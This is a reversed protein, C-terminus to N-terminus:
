ADADYLDETDFGQGEDPVAQQEYEHYDEEPIEEHVYGSTFGAAGHAQMNSSDYVDSPGPDGLEFEDVPDLSQRSPYSSFASGAGSVASMSYSNPSTGLSSIPVSYAQAAPYSSGTSYTADPFYGGPQTAVDDPEDEPPPGRAKLPPHTRNYDTVLQWESKTHIKGIFWVKVNYEVTYTKAYNLRSADDLKHRPGAPEVRIPKKTLGKEKEGKLAVPKGTHIITHHKAKVGRKKVGQGGYTM